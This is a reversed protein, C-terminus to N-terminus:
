QEGYNRAFREVGMGLMEAAQAPSIVHARYAAVVVNTWVEENPMRALRTVNEAMQIHLDSVKRELADITKNRALLESRAEKVYEVLERIDQGDGDLGASDLYAAHDKCRTLLFKNLPKMTCERFVTGTAGM